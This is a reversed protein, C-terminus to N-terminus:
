PTNGLVITCCPAVGNISVQGALNAFIKQGVRLSGLLKGADVPGVGNPGADVPGIGDVPGVGDIPGVRNRVSFGNVPQFGDVRGFGSKAAFADVPGASRITFRFTKGTTTRATVLGTGANISVITCCPAGPTAKGNVQAAAVTAVASSSLALILIAAIRMRNMAAGSNITSTM